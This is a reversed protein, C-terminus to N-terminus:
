KRAGQKIAAELRGANKIVVLTLNLPQFAEGSAGTEAITVRVARASKDRPEIYLDYRGGGGVFGAVESSSFAKVPQDAGYDAAVTVTVGHTGGSQAHLLVAAVSNDDQPGGMLIWGTQLLIQATTSVTSPDMRMLAANAASYYLAAGNLVQAAATVSSGAQLTDAGWKTWKKAVYNYVYAVGSRAFFVMEQYDRFIAAGAIGEPVSLNDFVTVEGSFLAFKGGSVFMVGPPGLVVSNRDTCNFESVQRPAGFDPPNNLADPGQGDITWIGQTTFFLPQDRFNSVAVITGAAAPFDRYQTPNFSAFIGNLAETDGPQSYYARRREADLLWVRDAIVAVDVCANPCFPLKLQTASGDSYLAPHFADVVPTTITLFAAWYATSSATTEAYSQAYLTTGGAQSAYLIYTVGQQNLNDRYSLPVSAYLAVQTGAPSLTVTNSPASRHIKGQADKWQVVVAFLYTGTLSTGSGGTTTGCLKPARLPSLETIESGDWVAPLAAAIIATGDATVAYRPQGGGFDLSVHRVMFNSSLLGEATNEALYGLVAKQGAMSFSNGGYSYGPYRVALDCGVRAVPSWSLTGNLERLSPRVVEVSPDSLYGPSTPAYRENTNWSAQVPLLPYYETSTAKHTAIPGVLQYWPIDGAFTLGGLGGLARFEYKTGGPSSPSSVSGNKSSAFVGYYASGARYFGCASWASNAMRNTQSWITALTTPSSEFESCNGANWAAMWILHGSTGDHVYAISHFTTADGGTTVDLGAVVTRSAVDVRHLRADTGAATFTILYANATDLPDCAVAISRPSASSPSFITAGADVTLGLTSISVSSCRIETTTPTLRYNYWLRVVGPGHATLAVFEGGSTTSGGFVAVAQAPTVVMRGADDLVTIFISTGGTMERYTAFYTYGTSADYCIAPNQYSSCGPPLVGARTVQAPYYAGKRSVTFDITHLMEVDSGAIRRNSGEGPHFFAVSSDYAGCPVIGGCLQGLALASTNPAKSVVGNRKTLRTNLSLALEPADGFPQVSEDFSSSDMGLTLPFSLLQQKPDTM